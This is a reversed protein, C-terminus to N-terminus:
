SAIRTELPVATIERAKLFTFIDIIIYLRKGGSVKNVLRHIDVQPSYGCAYAGKVLVRSRGKGGSFERMEM